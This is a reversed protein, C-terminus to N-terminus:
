ILIIVVMLANVDEVLEEALEKLKLSQISSRERGELGSSTSVLLNNFRSRSRASKM